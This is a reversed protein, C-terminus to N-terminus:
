SISENHGDGGEESFSPEHDYSVSNNEREGKHQETLPMNHNCTQATVVTFPLSELPRSNPNHHHVRMSGQLDFSGYSLAGGSVVGEQPSNEDREGELSQVFSDATSRLREPNGSICFGQRLVSCASDLPGWLDWDRFVVLKLNSMIM